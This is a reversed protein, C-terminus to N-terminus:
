INLSLWLWVAACETSMGSGDAAGMDLARRGVEYRNLDTGGLCPSTIVVARKKSLKAIADSIEGEPIGGAGYTEIVAARSKVAAHIAEPRTFPSLKIIAPFSLLNHPFKMKTMRPTDSYPRFADKETSHVKAINTGHILRGHFALWVDNIDDRLACECAFRINEPADSDPAGFPLMSGTLIIPKPTKVTYALVAGTYAMTDTGHLIVIGDYHPITSILLNHLMRWHAPTVDTSDISYLNQVTIETDPIDPKIEDGTKDPALGTGHINKGAITGGTTIILLKKM